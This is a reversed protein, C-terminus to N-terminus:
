LTTGAVASMKKAFHTCDGCRCQRCMPISFRM